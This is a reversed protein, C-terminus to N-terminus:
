SDIGDLLKSTEVELAASIKSLSLVTINKEVREVAGIYTRHLDSKFALEEQTFGRIQRYERINNEVAKLIQENNKM